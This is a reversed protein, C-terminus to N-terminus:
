LGHILECRAVTFNGGGLFAWGLKQQGSMGGRPIGDSQVPREADMMRWPVYEVARNPMWLRREALARTQLPCSFSEMDSFIAHAPTAPPIAPITPFGASTTSTLIHASPAFGGLSLNAYEFASSPRALTDLSSPRAVNPLPILALIARLIRILLDECM